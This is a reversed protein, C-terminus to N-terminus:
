IKTNKPVPQYHGPYISCRKMYECAMKIEEEITYRNWTNIIKRNIESFLKVSLSFSLLERILATASDNGQCIVFFVGCNQYM